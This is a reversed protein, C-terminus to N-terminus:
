HQSYLVLAGTSPPVTYSTCFQHFHRSRFCILGETFLSRTFRTGGHFPACACHQTIQTNDTRFLHSEHASFLERGPFVSVRFQGRPSGAPAASRVQVPVTNSGLSKLDRTDALEVVAAILKNIIVCSKKNTM